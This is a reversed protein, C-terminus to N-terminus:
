AQKRISRCLRLLRDLLSIVPDSQLRHLEDFLEANGHDVICKELGSNFRASKTHPSLSICIPSSEGYEVMLRSAESVSEQYITNYRRIKDPLEKIYSFIGM